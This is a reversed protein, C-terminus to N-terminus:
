FRLTSCSSSCTTSRTVVAILFSNFLLLDPKQDPGINNLLHVQCLAALLLGDELLNHVGASTTHNVLQAFVLVVAVNWALRYALHRRLRLLLPSALTLGALPGLWVWDAAETIQVFALNTLVLAVLLSRRAATVRWGGELLSRKRKWRM